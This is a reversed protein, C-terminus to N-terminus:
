SLKVIARYEAETVKQVSLRSNKFLIMNDLSKEKKLKEISIMKPFESVFKLDPAFWRPEELTAKPDYYDSTEDFQGPDPYAVKAVKALGVIGTPKANSHYYLVEDGVKMERLYIRAQYNRIDCWQARQDKKLRSIPYLDAESKVLWYNM